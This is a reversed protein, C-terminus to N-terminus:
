LTKLVPLLTQHNAGGSRSALYATMLGPQGDSSAAILSQSTEAGYGDSWIARVEGSANGAGPEVVLALAGQPITILYVAPRGDGIVRRQVDEFSVPAKSVGDPNRKLTLSISRVRGAEVAAVAGRVDGCQALAYALAEY